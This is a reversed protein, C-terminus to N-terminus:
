NLLVQNFLHTRVCPAFLGGSDIAAATRPSISTCTAAVAVFLPLVALFDGKAIVTKGSVM